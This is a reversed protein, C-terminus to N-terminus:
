FKLRMEISVDPPRNDPPHSDPPRSDPPHIDPPHSDPPRSDPPHIDPPHIDTCGPGVSGSGYYERIKPIKKKAFGRITSTDEDNCSESSHSSMCLQPRSRILRSREVVECHTCSKVRNVRATKVVFKGAGWVMWCFPSFIPAALKNIKCKKRQM